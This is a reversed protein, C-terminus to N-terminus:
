IEWIKAREDLVWTNTRSELLWIRDRSDLAWMSYSSIDLNGWAIVSLAVLGRRRRLNNKLLSFNPDALMGIEEASLAREYFLVDYIQGNFYRATSNQNGVYIFRYINNVDVSAYTRILKGNIYGLYGPNLNNGLRVLAVHILQGEGYGPIGDALTIISNGSIDRTWIEIRGNIHLMGFYDPNQVVARYDNIFSDQIFWYSLTCQWNSRGFNVEFGLGGNTVGVDIFQSDSSPSNLKVGWRQITDNWVWKPHSSSGNMTGHLSYPSSDPYTISDQGGANGLGAYVLSDTIPDDILQPM